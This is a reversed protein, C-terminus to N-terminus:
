NGPRADGDAKTLSPTSADTTARAASADDVTTEVAEDYVDEDDHDSDDDYDADAVKERIAIRSWRTVIDPAIELDVTDEGLEDIRGHLGSFTVVTDGVELGNQVESQRAMERKQRRFGLFVPLFMVAFLLLLLFAM